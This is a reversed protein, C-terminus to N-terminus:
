IMFTKIVKENDIRNIDRGGRAQIYEDSFFVANMTFNLSIQLLLRLIRIEIPILLTKQFLALIAHYKFISEVFFQLFSRKDYKIRTRFSLEEFDSPLVETPKVKITKIIFTDNEKQSRRSSNIIKLSDNHENNVNNNSIFGVFKNPKMKSIETETTQFQNLVNTNYNVNYNNIININTHNQKEANIQISNNDLNNEDLHKSENHNSKSNSNSNQKQKLLSLKYKKPPSDLKKISIDLYKSNESSKESIISEFSSSNIDNVEMNYNNVDFYNELKEKSQIHLKRPATWIFGLSEKIEKEDVLQKLFEAMMITKGSGTPSKFVLKKSSSYGLLKKTKTLLDDIANEQYIKLQM